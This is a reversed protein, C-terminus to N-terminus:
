FKNFFGNFSWTTSAWMKLAVAQGVNNGSTAKVSTISNGTFTVAACNTIHFAAEAWMASAKGNWVNHLIKCTAIKSSIGELGHFSISGELQNMTNREFVV